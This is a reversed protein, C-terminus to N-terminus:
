CLIKRTRFRFLLACAAITLTTFPMEGVVELVRAWGPKKAIALSTQLDTFTFVM